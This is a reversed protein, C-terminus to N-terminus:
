AKLRITKAIFNSATDTERLPTFGAANNEQAKLAAWFGLGIAGITLLLTSPPVHKVSQMVKSTEIRKGLNALRTTQVGRFSIPNM